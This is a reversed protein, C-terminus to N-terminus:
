RQGVESAPEVPVIGIVIRLALVRGPTFAKAM